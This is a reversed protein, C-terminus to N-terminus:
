AIILYIEELKKQAPTYFVGSRPEIIRVKYNESGDSTIVFNMAHAPKSGWFIGFAYPIRRLGNSYADRIFAAKLLHAFDDCDFKQSIWTEHNVNAADVIQQAIFQQPPHYHADSLYIKCGGKMYDDLENELVEKLRNKGIEPAVSEIEAMSTTYFHDAIAPHYARYFPVHNADPSSQVYGAIGEDVYGLRQVANNKEITSTTYFHDDKHGKYLRHLPVHAELQSPAVYCAVGERQYKQPLGDYESKNATYFHDKGNWARYLPVHNAIANIAVYCQIGEYAWTAM